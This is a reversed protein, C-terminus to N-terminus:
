PTVEVVFLVTGCHCECPGDVEYSWGGCDLHGWRDVGDFVVGEDGFEHEYPDITIVPLVGDPRGYSAAPAPRHGGEDDLLVWGNLNHLHVPMESPLAIAHRLKLGLREADAVEANDIRQHCEACGRILNSAVNATTNKPGVGGSGKGIRHATQTAQARGGCILGIECLGAVDDKARDKVLDIVPKPATKPRAKPKKATKRELAKGGSSMWAKRKPGEGRRMPKSRAPMPTRKM